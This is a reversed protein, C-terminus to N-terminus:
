HPPETPEGAQSRSLLWPDFVALNAACDALGCAHLAMRWVCACAFRGCPVSTSCGLCSTLHCDEVWVLAVSAPPHRGQLISDPVLRCNRSLEAWPSQFPHCSARKRVPQDESGAVAQDLLEETYSRYWSSPIATQLGVQGLAQREGDRQSLNAIRVASSLSPAGM